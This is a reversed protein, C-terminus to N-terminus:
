APIRVIPAKPTLTTSTLSTGDWTLIKATYGSVSAPLTLTLTATDTGSAAVSKTTHAIQVMNGQDSYLALIVIVNQATTTKNTLTVAAELTQNATLATANATSGVKFAVTAGFDYPSRANVTLNDTNATKSDPTYTVTIATGSDTAALAVESEKSTTFIKAFDADTQTVQKSTNDSLNLTVVMASLDLGEGEEYSLKPQTTVSMGTVHLTTVLLPASKVGDKSNCAWVKYYYARNPDLGSDAYTSAFEDALNAIEVYGGDATTSRLVRYTLATPVPDWKLVNAGLTQSDLEFNAPIAPPFEGDMKVLYSVVPFTQKASGASLEYNYVVLAWSFQFESYDTPVNAVIGQRTTTTTTYMSVSRNYEMGGHFGVSVGAVAVSYEQEVGVGFSFKKGATHSSDISQQSTGDGIGAGTFATAEAANGITALLAKGADGSLNSLGTSTSPYTRPDGITHDLVDSGVIPAGPISAARRNYEELPMMTMRPEYPVEVVLEDEVIQGTTPDKTTAKYVYIDYPTVMLVVGDQTSYSTFSVSKSVSTATSWASSFSASIKSEMDISFLEVGFVGVAQHFGLSVGATATFGNEEEGGVDTGTGFTTGANGVQKTEAYLEQYYPSAGLVAMIVPNAFAFTSREPLFELKVGKDLIYPASISTHVYPNGDRWQESMHAKIENGDKRVGTLYLRESSYWKNYNLLIIQEKGDDNGDFNGVLTEFIYTEDKDWNVNTINEHTKSSGNATLGSNNTATVTQLRFSDMTKDYLFIFGGTTVYEPTGPTPESLSACKLDWGSKVAKTSPKSTTEDYLSYFQQPGIYTETVPDYQLYTLSLNSGVVIVDGSGLINGLDVQTEYYMNTSGKGLTIMQPVNMTWGTTFNYIYLLAAQRSMPSPSFVGDKTILLEPFGDKNADLAELDSIGEYRNSFKSTSTTMSFAYISVRGDVLIAVEEKGDADFDGAVARILRSTNTLSIPDISVSTDLTFLTSTQPTGNSLNNYDSVYAQLKSRSGNAILGISVLEQQGNGDVDAGVTIQQYPASTWAIAAQVLSGGIPRSTRVQASDETFMTDTVLPSYASYTSTRAMALQYIKNVVVLSSGLPSKTKDVTKGSPSLRTPQETSLGMAAAQADQEASSPLSTDSAEAVRATSIPIGGAVFLIVLLVSLLRRFVPGAKRLIM